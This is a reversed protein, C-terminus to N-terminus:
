SETSNALFTFNLTPLMKQGLSLPRKIFLTTVNQIKHHLSSRMILKRNIKMLLIMYDISLKTYIESTSNENQFKLKLEKM